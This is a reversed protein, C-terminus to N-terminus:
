VEGWEVALLALMEQGRTDLASSGSDFFTGKESELLEIRLGEATVTMEINKKLKDLDTISQISRQLEVKLRAMDQKALKVAACHGNKHLYFASCHQPQRQSLTMTVPCREGSLRNGQRDCACWM